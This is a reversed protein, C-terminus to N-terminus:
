PSTSTIVFLYQIYLYINYVPDIITVLHFTVMALTLVPAARYLIDDFVIYRPARDKVASASPIM